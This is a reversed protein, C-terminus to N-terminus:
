VSRHDIIIKNAFVTHDSLKKYNQWSKNDVPDSHLQDFLLIGLAADEPTMYYHYGIETINDETQLLSRDRGDRCMRQLRQYYAYNDTLIIGGRGIPIHKKFQFSICTLTGPLYSDAQWSWAADVIPLPDLKYLSNWKIDSFQWPQRIKELMMPVSMYTYAPITILENPQNLLLLSLELAHTCCDVAIAYPAGFFKAIKKEFIDVVQYPQQFKYGANNIQKLEIRKVSNQIIQQQM